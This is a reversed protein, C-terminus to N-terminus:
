LDEADTQEPQPPTDFRVPQNEFELSSSSLIVTILFLQRDTLEPLFLWRDGSAHAYVHVDLDFEEDLQSSHLYKQLQDLEQDLIATSERWLETWRYTYRAM